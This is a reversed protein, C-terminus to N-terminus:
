KGICFKGFINGLIEETNIRGTITGIAFSALRVKEAVIEIPLDFNISQLSDLANVIEKRYREQTINTGIYPNIMSQIYEKIRSIVYDLNINNKISMEVIDKYKEKINNIENLNITDIKNLLIITKDDILNLINENININEPSIILIKLDADKANVIARKVGEQEIVDSTERIGATDYFNVLIGDIDLAVNVIDRTTGAINSVIAVDKKALFNLFSSKGVNPEGIISINLGDKIKEGVKNDQLIGEMKNATNQIDNKIKNILNIDIDDEPFDIIAEINSSINLIDDRLNDFFKSNKGNLQDIAQKHQLETEANVLDVISEAQILDFKGNLFARKSFEGREALRVGDISSLIKFVKNIIYTSCHLNLECIDEGTFSNPNEFYIVLANDLIDNKEDKLNCLTAVKHKLKKKIGLQEMCYITKSGSIRIVYVSCKGKITLPAFITDNNNSM